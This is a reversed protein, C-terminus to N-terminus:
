FVTKPQYNISIKDTSSFGLVLNLDTITVQKGNISYETSDIVTTTGDAHLVEIIMDESSTPARSLTFTSKQQIIAQGISDLIASYDPDDMNMALSGNGVLNGLAIYRDARDTAITKLGGAMTDDEGRSAQLDQIAQATLAVISTVFYNPTTAQPGDLNLFFSDLQAKVDSVAMLDSAVPCISITYTFGDVTKAPCSTGESGFRCNNGPATCCIGNAGTVPGAGNMTVLSSQDCMYHTWPTFSSSGTSPLPMTQDDEDSVFIIGRTSGARFFANATTENDSLLQLVSGLGRESGHGASGTTVNIIFDNLLGSTWTPLQSPDMGAPPMTSIIAKGSHITDNEVTNVCMDLSTEGASANPNLCHSPGSYAAQNDRTACHTVGNLFYPLGEFCLAAVPGDHLEPLLQGYNPGWAPILDAFRVGNGFEGNSLNVLTPNSAPNVFTSLRSQIYPSVWGTTGPVISALYPTFAKHALYTDTTIVAVRIDWTPLMYKAAFAAFGNRLKEQAVDMSSSNDVVWLLDIKTNVDIQASFTQEQQALRFSGPLEGTCAVSFLSAVLALALRANINKM